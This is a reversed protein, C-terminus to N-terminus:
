SAKHKAPIFMYQQVLTAVTGYKGSVEVRVPDVLSARQLKAVKSTMTASFLLTRRDRPLAGLVTNIAEEFDLSLMRDAEDLVLFRIGRLSFGKTNELHDVIRGPTSIIVHPKRALAIAQSMMDVGGVIVTHKVGLASGLAEFQEGIQFALERTPTMILAFPRVPDALLAQIIPIAFAATKGSGTEALGIVDRGGLVLPLTEAQIRTPSKWGLAKITAVLEDCVGLEKFSAAASTLATPKGASSGDGGGGGGGGAVGEIGDDGAADPDDDRAGAGGAAAADPVPAAGATETELEGDGGEWGALEDDDSDLGGGAV